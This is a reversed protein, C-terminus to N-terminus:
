AAFAANEQHRHERRQGAGEPTGGDHRGQEGQVRQPHLRHGPGGLALVDERRQEPQEGHPRVQAVDAAGAGAAIEQRETEEGQPEGRLRHEDGQGEGQQQEVPPREPAGELGPLPITAPPARPNARHAPSNRSFHGNKASASSELRTVSCAWVVLTMGNTVGSRAVRSAFAAM